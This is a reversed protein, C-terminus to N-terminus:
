KFCHEPSPFQRTKVDDAFAKAADSLHAAVNGYKKVFKPTFETFLGTMDETVLVQGDCQNSAGIGITPITLTRTVQQALTETVCELVVAFAGAEQLAIASDVIYTIEEQTRGQYRYGGVRQVHQPMLGIHAMVPVGRLQLFQITEAMEKGGELKVASCGTEAMIKAANRFAEQPSIQYSAFPMDVVVCAKRTARVVAKGHAIMMDLTVSLTSDMGYVVMGVTDGVLLIDTHEDLIKAFPATYATLAVLPTKGKQACIDPVTKRKLM